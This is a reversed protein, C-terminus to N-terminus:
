GATAFGFAAGWGTDLGPSCDQPSQGPGATAPVSGPSIVYGGHKNRDDVILRAIQVGSRLGKLTGGAFAPNGGFDRHRGIGDHDPARVPNHQRTDASKAVAIMAKLARRSHDLRQILGHNGASAWKEPDADPHLKERLAPQLVADMRSEAPEASLDPEDLRRIPRQLHGMHAPVCEGVQARM